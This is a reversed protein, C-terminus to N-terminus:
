FKEKFLEYFNPKASSKVLVHGLNMLQLPLVQSLAFAEETHAQNWRSPVMEKLLNMIKSLFLQAAQVFHQM